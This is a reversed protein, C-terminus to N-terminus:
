YPKRNARSISFLIVSVLVLMLGAILLGVSLLTSPISFYRTENFLSIVFISFASGSIIMIFGPLGLYKLPHKLAVMEILSTIVSAGHSIPNQSSTNSETNYLVTVKEETIKLGHSSINVLIESGAAMGDNAVKLFKLAEPSYARFGSQTDRFPLESAFNTVKDIMKAGFARYGPMESNDNFRYGIVVDADKELVPKMLKPIDKPLFQGDGDFTVLVDPNRKRAYHFLSRLAAGYGKNKPHQIVIAGGKKAENVTSDESGDDCVVVEDSFKLCEKVLNKIVDGENYAPICVLRM